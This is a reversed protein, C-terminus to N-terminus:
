PTCLGEHVAIAVAHTINEADWKEYIRRLHMKVGDLSINMMAATQERTKGSAVYGLVEAEKRTLECVMSM